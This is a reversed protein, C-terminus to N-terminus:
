IQRKSHLAEGFKTMYEHHSASVAGTFPQLSLPTTSYIRTVNYCSDESPVLQEFLLVEIVNILRHVSILSETVDNVTKCYASILLM